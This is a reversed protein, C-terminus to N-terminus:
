IQWNVNDQKIAAPNGALLVGEEIFKRTVITGAAVVSDNAIYSGKLIMARCGVWVHNGINIPKHNVKSTGAIQVHHWDTDMVLVKWSILVDDGFSIKDVCVFESEATCCFNNGFKIVGNSACSVKCGQGLNAEGFFVVKGNNEWISKSYEYDFIGVSEFGIRVLGRRVNSTDIEVEGALCNFKVRYSVLVPLRIAIKFPFYHFCFHLTNPMSLTYEWLRKIKALLEGGM